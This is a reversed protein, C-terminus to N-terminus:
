ARESRSSHIEAEVVPRSVLGDDIIRTERIVFAPAPNEFLPEKSTSVEGTTQYNQWMAALIGNQAILGQFDGQEVLRGDKFVYIVDFMELLHLKHISSIVCKDSFRNLISTYIMRENPTDVSSTPEDLLVIDSDKSFYIGRALALRQKEGGSLNVGKEAINTELQNPLRSLVGDFRAMALADMIESDHEEMGFTINFRITDSFIEPDQPMLTTSHALHKLGKELKVGDCEVVVSHATQLGRLLTLLTSKGSGSEGVLAISRGKYLDISVNDLHHTRHKEDEYTFCLDRVAIHKWQDPLRAESAQESYEAQADLITAAGRVDAAERVVLGYYGAFNYFSDGIRRLYEFLTFFTGAMILQGAQLTSHAYWALVLVIMISIIIATCGWKVENVIINNRFMPLSVFIRRKVETLTKSELRLTIVSVINTVYDHVASAVTNEFVNLQDYQRSLFHDFLAIALFSLLTASLASWGAFPMFFFLIVLTGVLRLVMYVIEFGDQFFNSLSLTARNIKDISEGSHHERQWSIPLSTVCNFLDAKYKSRIQFAVYREIVRAPAHFAWFGITISFFIGLYWFIDHLLKASKSTGGALDAQVDNLMRGIVYPEFLAIGQAAVFMLLYAFMYPRYKGAYRWGTQILLLIPNSKM